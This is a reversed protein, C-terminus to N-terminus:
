DNEEPDLASVVQRAQYRADDLAHHAEGRHELDGDCLGLERVTRVDREQYYDWPMEVGVQEGAHALLRCDFAPSCAWIEEAPEAFDVFDELADRLPIGDGLERGAFSGHTLHWDLTDVDLSLGAAQCSRQDIDRIFKTALGSKDFQVAGVSLIASDQELGLTEIDVMLRRTTM